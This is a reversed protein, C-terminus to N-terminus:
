MPFAVKIETEPEPLVRCNLRLNIPFEIDVVEGTVKPGLARHNFEVKILLEVLGRM